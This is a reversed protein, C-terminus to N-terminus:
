VFTASAASRSTAMPSPSASHVGGSEVTGQRFRKILEHLIFAGQITLVMGFRCGQPEQVTVQIPVRDGTPLVDISRQDVM